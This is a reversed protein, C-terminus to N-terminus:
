STQKFEVYMTINLTYVGTHDISVSNILAKVLKNDTQVTNYQKVKGIFNDITNPNSTKATFIVNNNEDVSFGDILLDSPILQFLAQMLDQYRYTSKTTNYAAETKQKLLIYKAEIPSLKEIDKIENAINKETVRNQYSLFTSYSFTLILVLIYAALIFMSASQIIYIRRAQLKLVTKDKKVFNIASQNTTM